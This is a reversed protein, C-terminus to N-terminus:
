SMLQRYWELQQRRGDRELKFAHTPSQHLEWPMNLDEWRHALPRKPEVKAMLIKAVPKQLVLDEHGLGEGISIQKIGEFDLEASHHVHGHLFHKGGLNRISKSLWEIEGIGGIEHDDHPRPDKLPRHSFFVQEDEFPKEALLTSILQGRLGSQAPFFDAATDLNIFRTGAIDFAHNLPGLENLFRDYILGNDHFDHNGITIYSPIAANNFAKIAAEYEGETYNFDGLHLLFQANLQKARKLTWDLESGGGTDGMVAFEFGNDADLTWHLKFDTAGNSQVNVTRKLGSVQEDIHSPPKGDVHMVANSAVNSISFEIQGTGAQISLTPEPAVARFTIGSNTNSVIIADRLFVKGSLSALAMSDPLMEPEWSLRPYRLGRQYSYLGLGTLLGGGILLKRRSIM